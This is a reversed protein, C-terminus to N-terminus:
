FVAGMGFAAIGVRGGAEPIRQYERGGGCKKRNIFLAMKVKM